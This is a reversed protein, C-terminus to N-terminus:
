NKNNGPELISIIREVAICADDSENPVLIQAKNYFVEREDMKSEVFRIIEEKSKEAILLRRAISAPPLKLLRQLIAQRNMKLYVTVGERNMVEMNDFFCPVGGGTSIIFNKNMILELLVTRESERFLKEGKTAYFRSPPLGFKLEFEQDIDKFPMRLRNALIKGVTTKGSGMFGILFINM